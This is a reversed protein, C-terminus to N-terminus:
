SGSVRKPSPLVSEADTQADAERFADVTTRYVDSDAASMDLGDVEILIQRTQPSLEDRLLPLAVNDGAVLIRRVQEDKIVQELISAVEKIHKSSPEGFTTPVTGTCWGGASVRKGKKNRITQQRQAAGAAFVYLRASNTNLLLAAYTGLQDALRALPFVHPERDVYLRHGDVPADLQVAQFLAPDATCSFIAVASVSKSVDNELYARITDFNDKLDPHEKAATDIFGASSERQESSLDLYVSVVPAASGEFEALDELVADLSMSVATCSGRRYYSTM